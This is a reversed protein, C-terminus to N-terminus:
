NEEDEGPLQVGERKAVDEITEVNEADRFDLADLSKRASRVPVVDFDIDFHAANYLADDPNAPKHIAKVTKMFTRPASGASKRARGIIEFVADDKYGPKFFRAGVGLTKIKVTKVKRVPATIAAVAEPVALVAATIDPQKLGLRAKVSDIAM